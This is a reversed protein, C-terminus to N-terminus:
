RRAGSIIEVLQAPCRLPLLHDAQPLLITQCGPVRDAIAESATTVMPYELGGVVMVAPATVEGLRGFV